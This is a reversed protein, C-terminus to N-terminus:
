IKLSVTKNRKSFVRKNGTEVFRGDAGICFSMKDEEFCYSVVDEKSGSYGKREILTGNESPFLGWRLTVTLSGFQWQKGPWADSTFPTIEQAVPLQDALHANEEKARLMLQADVHTRGMKYLAAKIKEPSIENGVVFTKTPMKVLVVNKHWENLLYVRTTGREQWFHAGLLVIVGVMGAIWVKRTMWRCPWHFILFLGIYYAIILCPGWASIPVSAFPISAFFRVLGAFLALGWLAPFYLVFGLHMLELVYYAFSLGLLISALPVLVMNAVLGAISVKYFVNTFIPLLVLQTSLTALFIQAFFRVWSPWRNPIQWNNVVLVIAFTALFSMQFGTEFLAAPHFILLVFCSLVLGQFIGSNRKFLYGLVACVTMFYARLLPADAGALLTYIGAIGLSILLSKKRNLSFLGCAAMTLLTVFGVNGGSAVLLHIAGSDQFATFLTPSLDGREGLLIGGGIQALERPFHTEFTELISRRLAGIVRYVWVAPKLVEFDQTRIEAFVNKYSLYNRWDFNGLLAIGYPERLVGTFAITEKWEPVKQYSRLYLFGIAPNGNVQKVKIRVNYSSPKEVAFSEVRGVIRVADKSIFRSVDQASPQPHYFM